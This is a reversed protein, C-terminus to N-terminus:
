ITFAGIVITGGIVVAIVAAITFVLRRENNKNRVAMAVFAAIVIVFAIAAVVDM